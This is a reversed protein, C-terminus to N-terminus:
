AIKHQRSRRLSFAFLGAAFLVPVAPEPVSDVMYVNSSTLNLGSNPDINLQATYINATSSLAGLYVASGNDPRTTDGTTSFQALINNSAGYLTLTENYPTNLFNVGTQLGFGSVPTSFTFTLVTGSTGGNNQLNLLPDGESFNGFYNGNTFTTDSGQQGTVFLNTNSSVGITLGNASTATLPGSLNQGYAGYQNWNLLDNANLDSKNTVEVVSALSTVSAGVLAFSLLTTRTSMVPIGKLIFLANKIFSFRM